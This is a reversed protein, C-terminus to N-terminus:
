AAAADDRRRFGRWTRITFAGIGAVFLLAVALGGILPMHRVISLLILALLLFLARWGVSKVRDGGLRELAFDGVFIAAIVYGLMLLVMYGFVMMLALPIGIITVMLIVAALPVGILMVCGVGASQWWERRITSAAERSFAPLGLILLTGLVLVGISFMTRGGRSSRHGDKRFWGHDDSDLQLVGQAVQAKPDMVFQGGSRYELRGAVRTDPGIRIDQGALRLDGLIVSNVYISEGYTQLDGGVDGEVDISGGALTVDGRLNAGRPVRLKGGAAHV